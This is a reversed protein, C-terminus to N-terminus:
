SVLQHTSGDPSEVLSVAEHFNDMTYPRSKMWAHVLKTHEYDFVWLDRDQIFRILKPINEDGHFHLWSLMAGSMEMDFIKSFNPHCFCELDKKATAHHDIVKVSNAIESMRKLVEPKFSFDLIFVDRGQLKEESVTEGYQCPIYEAENKFKLWAAYCAGLGDM